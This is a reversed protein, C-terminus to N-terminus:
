CDSAVIFATEEHGRKELIGLRRLMVNLLADGLFIGVSLRERIEDLLSWLFCFPYPLPSCAEELERLNFSFGPQDSALSSARNM